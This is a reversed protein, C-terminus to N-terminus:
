VAFQARHADMTAQVEIISEGLLEAVQYLTAPGYVGNNRANVARLAHLTATIRDQNINATTPVAPARLTQTSTM